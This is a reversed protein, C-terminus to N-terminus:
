TYQISRHSSAQTHMGFDTWLASHAASTIHLCQHFVDKEYELTLMTSYAKKIEIGQMWLQRTYTSATCALAVTSSGHRSVPSQVRNLGTGCHWAFAASWCFKGLLLFRWREQRWCQQWNEPVHRHSQSVHFYSLRHLPWSKKWRDSEVAIDFIKINLNEQISCIIKALSQM